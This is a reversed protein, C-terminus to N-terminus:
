NTPAEAYLEIILERVGIIADRSQVSNLGSWDCTTEWYRWLDRVRYYSDSTLGQLPTSAPSEQLRGSLKRAVNLTDVAMFGIVKDCLGLHANEDILLMLEGHENHGPTPSPAIVDTNTDIVVNFVSVTEESRMLITAQAMVLTSSTSTALRVPYNKLAHAPMLMAFEVQSESPLVFAGDTDSQVVPEPYGWHSVQVGALPELTALDLVVGNVKPTQYFREVTVCSTIWLSMFMCILPKLPAFSFQNKMM